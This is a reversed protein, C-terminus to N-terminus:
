YLEQNTEGQRSHDHSGHEKVHPIIRVDVTFPRHYAILM